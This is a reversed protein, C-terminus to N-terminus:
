ELAKSVRYRLVVYNKKLGLVTREPLWTQRYHTVRVCFMASYMNRRIQKQGSAYYHKRIHPLGLRSRTKAGTSSKYSLDLCKAAVPVTNQVDLFQYKVVIGGVAVV